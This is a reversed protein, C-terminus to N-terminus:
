MLRDREALAADIRKLELDYSVDPLMDEGGGLLAATLAYSALAAIGVFAVAFLIPDDENDDVDRPASGPIGGWPLADEVADTWEVVDRGPPRRCVELFLRLDQACRRNRLQGRRCTDAFFIDDVVATLAGVDDFKLTARGEILALPVRLRGTRAADQFIKVVGKWSFKSVEGYRDAYPTPAPEVGPWLRAVAVLWAASPPTWSANYKVIVKRAAVSAAASAAAQFDPLEDAAARSWNDAARALEDAGKVSVGCASRLTVDEAWNDRPCFVATAAAGSPPADRVFADVLERPSTRLAACRHRIISPAHLASAYALLLLAVKVTSM